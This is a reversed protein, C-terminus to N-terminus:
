GIAGYDRLLKLYKELKEPDMTSDLSLTINMQGTGRARLTTSAEGGDDKEERDGGGSPEEPDAAPKADEEPETTALATASIHIEDGGHSAVGAFVASEVFLEVARDGNDPHVGLKLAQQRIKAASVTDSQFTDFLDKFLKPSLFAQQLLPQLEESPASNVNRALSTATYASSEGELLGFQKLASARIQGQPGSSNFVGKLIIQEPQPGTHTKAVLKKAFGIAQELAIQPFRTGGKRGGRPMTKKDAMM